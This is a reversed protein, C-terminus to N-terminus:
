VAYAVYGVIDVKKRVNANVYAYVSYVDSTLVITFAM